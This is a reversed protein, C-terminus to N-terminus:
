EQMSQNTLALSVPKLGGWTGNSLGGGLASGAVLAIVWDVIPSNVHTGLKRRSPM